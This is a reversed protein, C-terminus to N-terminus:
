VRSLSAGGTPRAVVLAAATAATVGIIVLQRVEAEAFGKLVFSEYCFWGAVVALTPVAVALSVGRRGVASLRAAVLGLAGMALGFWLGKEGGPQFVFRTLGSAIM